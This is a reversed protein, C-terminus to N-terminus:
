DWPKASRGKPHKVSEPRKVAQQTLRMSRLLIRIVSSEAQQRKYLRLLSPTDRTKEILKAIRRAAIMHHCYQELLGQNGRMFHHPPMTNVVAVWEQAEEKTLYEPPPLREGAEIPNTNVAVLSLRGRTRM